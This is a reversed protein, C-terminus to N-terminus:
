AVRRISFPVWRVERLFGLRNGMEESIEKKGNLVDCVHGASLVHVRSWARVGGAADCATRLMALLDADTAANRTM